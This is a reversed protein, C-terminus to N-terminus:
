ARQSNLIKRSQHDRGEDWFLTLGVYKSPQSLSFVRVASYPYRRLGDGENIAWASIVHHDEEVKTDTASLIMTAFFDSWGEGLAASEGWGLCDADAPGGVVRSSLGHALQHIVMGVDM